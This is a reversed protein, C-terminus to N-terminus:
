QTLGALHHTQEATITRRLGDDLRIQSEWGFRVRALEASGRLEVPRQGPLPHRMTVLAPDCGTLEIIQLAVERMTPATGSSVNVVSCDDPAIEAIRLLASVADSVHILDRRDEPRDITIRRRAMVADIIAPILFSRSQGPGYCLALRATIVPFPLTPALMALYNTAALMGAGYPTLPVTAGAESYPLEAQGYEAITGARLVISPPTALEALPELLDLSPELYNTAAERTARFSPVPTARTAAALHYVRDPLISELTARMADRDGLDIRHVVLKGIFRDLRKLSTTPRVLAHVEEGAEVLHECLHAGIFGAAGTVLSVSRGLM